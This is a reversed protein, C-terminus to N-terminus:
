EPPTMALPLLPLHGDCAAGDLGDAARWTALDCGAALADAAECLLGERLGTQAVELRTVGLLRAVELLLVAGPVVTDVRKESMGSVALRQVRTTGALSAM